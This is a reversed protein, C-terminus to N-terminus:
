KILIMKKLEVFDGAILRYFYVGSSYASANFDIEYKGAKFEGDVLISIEKGLMDFVSLKVNSNAPIDFKIKTLPNFPNPYNQYLICTKPVSNTGNSGTLSETIKALYVDGMGVGYSWSWGGVYYIGEQSSAVTFARDDSAGGITRSWLSDGSSNTKVIYMNYGDQESAAMGAVICSGDSLVQVYQGQESAENGYIKKWLLTGNADLKTILVDTDTEFSSETGTFIFGGDPTSKIDYCESQWSGTYINSWISNGSADTRIIYSAWESSQTFGGIIYGGDGLQQVSLAVDGGSEERFFIRSWQVIGNLDTKIIYMDYSGFSGHMLWTQGAIIYGGDSTQWVSHARDDDNFGYDYQQIWQINGQSDTKLLFPDYIQTAVETMGALIYGGDSTPRISRAIDNMGPSYTRSWLENGALDTKMLLINKYSSPTPSTFGAIIIGGDNSMIMSQSGDDGTSGFTQTWQIVQSNIQLALIPLIFLIKAANILLRIKSKKINITKM